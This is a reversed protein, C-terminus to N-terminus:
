SEEAESVADILHFFERLAPSVILRRHADPLFPRLGRLLFVPAEARSDKLLADLLQEYLARYFFIPTGDEDQEELLSQLWAAIEDRETADCRIEVVEDPHEGAADTLVIDQLARRAKNADRGPVTLALRGADGGASEVRCDVGSRSLYSGLRDLTEREQSSALTIRGKDM